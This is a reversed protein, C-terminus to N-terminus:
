VAIPLKEEWKPVETEISENRYKPKWVEANEVQGQLM